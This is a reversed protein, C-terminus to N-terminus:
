RPERICDGPAIVRDMGVQRHREKGSFDTCVVVSVTVSGLSGSAIVRVVCYLLSLASLCM